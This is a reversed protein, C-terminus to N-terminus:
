ALVEIAASLTRPSTLAEVVQVRWFWSLREGLYTPPVDAPVVVGVVQEPDPVIPWRTRWVMTTAFKEHVGGYKGTSYHREFKCTHCELTVSLQALAPAVGPDVRVVAGATEGRRVSTRDLALSVGDPPDVDGVRYEASVQGLAERTVGDNWRIEGEQM